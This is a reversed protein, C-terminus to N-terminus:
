SSPYALSHISEILNIVNRIDGRLSRCCKRCEEDGTAAAWWGRKRKKIREGQRTSEREMQTMESAVCITRHMTARKEFDEEHWRLPRNILRERPM